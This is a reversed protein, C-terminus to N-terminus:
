GNSLQSNYWIRNRIGRAAVPLTEVVEEGDVLYLRDQTAVATCAHNPVLRLRDGVALTAAGPVKVWGHEESLNTIRAHPMPRMAKANYLLVGYGDTGYGTDTTLVKKGADVYLREAGSRDRRKSIVTTLATLACEELRAAGLAVQMADYFVYNGPRIETISFGGRGANEFAAMTPTPGTSIEFGSPPVGEVGVEHLRAAVALMRDREADAMRRLAAAPTEDDRPGRYAQGAHTLIGTLGLGPLAAIEQVLEATARADDWPVGCRGHGADSEMLVAATADHAAYFGSAQRAGEATDVCFSVRTGSEMLRLLREHKSRGVVTYAVRVDGFGAEAFVEAEAPTAVTIGRAGQERQRRAIQPSKHTKVHPRLAVGQADARQQMRRLNRELRAKEILLCPTPLDDLFM